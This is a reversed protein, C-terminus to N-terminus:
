VGPGGLSLWWVAAGIGLWFLLVGVIIWRTALAVATLPAKPCFRNM